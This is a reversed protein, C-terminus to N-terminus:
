AVCCHEVRLSFNLRALYLGLSNLAGYHCILTTVVSEPVILMNGHMVIVVIIVMPMLSRTRMTLVVLVLAMNILHKSGIRLVLMKHVTTLIERDRLM